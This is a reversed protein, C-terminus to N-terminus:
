VTHLTSLTGNWYCCFKYLKSYKYDSTDEKQFSHMAGFYFKPSKLGSNDGQSSQFCCHIENRLRIQSGFAIKVACVPFYCCNAQYVVGFGGRGICNNIHIIITHSSKKNNSGSYPFQLHIQMLTEKEIRAVQSLPIEKLDTSVESYSFMESHVTQGGPGSLSQNNKIYLYTIDGIYPKLSIDSM